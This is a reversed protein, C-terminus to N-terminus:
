LKGSLIGLILGLEDRIKKYNLGFLGLVTVVRM